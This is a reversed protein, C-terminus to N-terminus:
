RVRRRFRADIADLLGALGGVLIAAAQLGWFVAQSVALIVAFAFIGLVLAWGVVFDWVSRRVTM